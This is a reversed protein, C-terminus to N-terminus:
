EIGLVPHPRYPEELARAEEATLTVALGAVLQDLQELKTASVGIKKAATQPTLGAAERAWRVLSPDVDITVRAM